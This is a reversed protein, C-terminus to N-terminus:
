DNPQNQTQRLSKLFKLETEVEKRRPNHHKEKKKGHNIKVPYMTGHAKRKKASSKAKSSIKVKNHGEIQALHRKRM